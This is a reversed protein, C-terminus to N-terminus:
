VDVRTWSSLAVPAAVIGEAKAFLAQIHPTKLHAELAEPSKWTEIMLFHTPKDTSRHLFYEVCGEEQRTSIAAEALAAILQDEKGPQTEISATVRIM